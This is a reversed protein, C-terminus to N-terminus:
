GARASQEAAAPRAPNIPALFRSAALGVFAGLARLIVGDISATRAPIAIQGLEMGVAAALVLALCLTLLARRTAASSAGLRSCGEALVGLPVFWAIHALANTLAAFESSLYLTTLPTAVFSDIRPKLFAPDFNFEFPSWASAFLIATYGTALVALWAAKRRAGGSGVYAMTRPFEDDVSPSGLRRALAAGAIVGLSGTLLDTVDAFRSLIITQAAEIGIVVAVGALVGGILRSPRHAPWRRYALAGVPMFLVVDRLLEYATLWTPPWAHRFPALNIRGARYKDHLESLSITLDLPMLSYLVLGIGYAGLLKDLRSSPSAPRAWSRLWAVVGPGMALWLGAGITAGLIEAAIDNQSVTRAPFWIQAFEIAISLAGCAVIALPLLAMASWRRLNGAAVGSALFGLPVFLLINAVWDARENAGLQLFPINRFRAVAETLPLPEYKLPVLSGYIVFAAYAAAAVLLKFRPTGDATADRGRPTKGTM